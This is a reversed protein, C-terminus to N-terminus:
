AAGPDPAFKELVSSCVLVARGFVIEDSDASGNELTMYFILFLGPSVSQSSFGLILTTKYRWGVSLFIFLL